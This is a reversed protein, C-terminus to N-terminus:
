ISTYMSPFPPFRPPSSFGLLFLSLIFTYGAALSLSLLFLLTLLILLLFFLSCRSLSPAYEQLHLQPFESLPSSFPFFVHPSVFLLPLPPCLHCLSASVSASPSPRCIVDGAEVCGTDGVRRGDEEGGWWRGRRREEGRRGPGGSGTCRWPM